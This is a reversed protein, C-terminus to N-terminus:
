HIVKRGGDAPWAARFVRRSRGGAPQPLTPVNEPAREAGAKPSRGPGWGAPRWPLPGALCPSLAAAVARGDGYRREPRPDLGRRVVAEIGRAPRRAGMASEPRPARGTLGHHLVACFSYVDSAPTLPEGRVQEPSAYPASAIVQGDERAPEGVPRALGFDM